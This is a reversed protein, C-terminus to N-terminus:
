GAEDSGVLEEAMAIIEASSYYPSFYVGDMPRSILVGNFRPLYAGVNKYAGVCVWADRDLVLCVTQNEAPNDYTLLLRNEGVAPTVTYRAGSGRFHLGLAGHQARYLEAGDATRLVRLEGNEAFAFLLTDDFAFLLKCTTAPLTGANREAGTQRDCIDLSEGNWRALMRGNESIAAVTAEATESRQATRVEDPLPLVTLTRLDLAAGPSLLREGSLTLLGPDDWDGGEPLAVSTGVTGSALDLLMAEAARGTPTYGLALARDGEQAAILSVHSVAPSFVGVPIMGPNDVFRVLAARDPYDESVLIVSSEPYSEGTIVAGSLVYGSEYSYFGMSSSLYGDNSCYTVTGNDLVLGMGANDYVKGALLFGPLTRHWLIEGDALNLEYLEHKSGFVVRGGACAFLDVGAYPSAGGGTELTLKETELPTEYRLAWGEEATYLRLFSVGNQNDCALLLDREATFLLQCAVPGLAFPIGGDLELLEGSDTKWLILDAQSADPRQLLLAALAADESLAAAACFRAPGDSLKITGLDEGDAMRLLSAYEATKATGAFYHTALGTQGDPSLAAFDLLGIDPRQWLREGAAADYLVAGKAGKGLVASIKDLYSLLFVGTDDWQRILEGSGTDRFRLTGVGDNTILRRGDGSLALATIITDQRMSRVYGLEGKRYLNLEQSLAYEAEAVYPRENGARPLAQLAYRLAGNYDGERYAQGSLAALTKSESILARTLQERIQANRNLLLGIFAAAVAMFVGVAVAARRTRFRLERRYLADFPCGILAALIRLSEVGFLRRRKSASDAVINAALPEIRELLEGEATRIETLLSPFASEPTGDALVALVHDRAHHQLFYRIERQVWISNASEPTCIVILFASHDLAERIKEDLNSSSPLEDQDRFVLGLKERGNRQLEKPIRCREIRRHLKKAVAIDLPRHRYSIFAIYEREM